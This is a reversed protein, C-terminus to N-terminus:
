ASIRRGEIQQMYRVAFRVDSSKVEYWYAVNKYNKEALYAQYLTEALLGCPMVRPQGFRVEPDLVICHNGQTFPTFQAAVGDDGFTLKKLYEGLMTDNVYQHKNKGSVQIPFEMKGDNQFKVAIDHTTEIV